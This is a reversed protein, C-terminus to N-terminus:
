IFGLRALASFIPSSTEGCADHKWTIKGAPRRTDRKRHGRTRVAAALGPGSSREQSVQPETRQRWAQALAGSRVSRHNQVSGGPMPWQEAGSQGCARDAAALGISSSRSSVSRLNQGNSGPRPWQKTRSLHRTKDAAALCPGSSRVHRVQPETRKRLAHAVAGSRVSRHNQGSGGPMPWQEAGSAGTTRNAAALCPGSSREQCVQSETRQWSAHAM